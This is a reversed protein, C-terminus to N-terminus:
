HNKKKMKNALKKQKHEIVRKKEDSNLNLYFQIIEKKTVKKIIPKQYKKKMKPQITIIHSILYKNIAVM